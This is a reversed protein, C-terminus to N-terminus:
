RTAAWHAAAELEALNRNALFRMCAFAAQVGAAPRASSLLAIRLDTALAKLRNCDAEPHTNALLAFRMTMKQAEQRTAMGCQSFIETLSRYAGRAKRRKERDDDDLNRPNVYRHDHFKWLEGRADDGGLPLWESPMAIDGVWASTLEFAVVDMWGESWHCSQHANPLTRFAGQFAHCILEHHFTYAIHWLTRCPLHQAYLEITVIRPTRAINVKGHVRFPAFEHDNDVLGTVYSIAYGAESTQGEAQLISRVRKEILAAFELLGCSCAVSGIAAGDGNQCQHDTAATTELLLRADNVNPLTGSLHALKEATSKLFTPIDADTKVALAAGAADGFLIGRAANIVNRESEGSGRCDPDLYRAAALWLAFSAKQAPLLAM